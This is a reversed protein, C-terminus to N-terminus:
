KFQMLLAICNLLTGAVYAKIFLLCFTCQIFVVSNSSQARIPTNATILDFLTDLLGAYEIDSRILTWARSFICHKQPCM